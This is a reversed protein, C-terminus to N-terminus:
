VLVKENTVIQDKLSKLEKCDEYQEKDSYHQIAADLCTEWEGKPVELYNDSNNIQFLTATNRKTKVAEKIAEKVRLYVFEVFTDSLLINDSPIDKIPYINLNVLEKTKRKKAM